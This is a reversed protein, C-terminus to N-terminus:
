MMYGSLLMILAVLIASAMIAPAFLIDGVRSALLFFLVVLGVGGLKNALTAAFNPLISRLAGFGDLPPLPLLNLNALALNIFVATTCLEIAGLWLPAYAVGSLQAHGLLLATPDLHRASPCLVLLIMMLVMLVNAAFLALMLNLSVGALSVGLNGRRYNRYRQPRVPVPKAWGIVTNGPLVSLILPVIISGFPDIHRIPNLNIRRHDRATTDGSWWAAVGHAIEHFIISVVLVALVAVHHWIPQPQKGTKEDALTSVPMSEPKETQEFTPISDTENDDLEQAFSTAAPANESEEQDADSFEARTDARKSRIHDFAMKAVNFGALGACALSFVSIALGAVGVRRDHLRRKGGLLLMLSLIFLAVAPLSGVLPILAPVALIWAACAMGSAVPEVPQDALPEVASRITLTEHHVAIEPTGTEVAAEDAAACPRNWYASPALRQAEERKTQAPSTQGLAELSNAMTAALLSRDVPPLMGPDIQSLLSVTREHEGIIQCSKAIELNAVPRLNRHEPYKAVLDDIARAADSAAALDGKHASLRSRLGILLVRLGPSKLDISELIALYRECLDYQRSELASEAGCRLSLGHITRLYSARLETGGVAAEPNYAAPVSRTRPMDQELVWETLRLAEAHRGLNKLVQIAATVWRHSVQGGRRDSEQRAIQWAEELQGLNNACFMATAGWEIEPVRHRHLIDALATLHHECRAAEGIASYVAAALEHLVAKTRPNRAIRLGRDYWERAEQYRGLQNLRTGVLADLLGPNVLRDLMAAPLWSRHLRMTATLATAYDGEVAAINAQRALRRYMPWTIVLAAVIAGFVAMPWCAISFVQGIVICRKDPFRQTCYAAMRLPPRVHPWGARSLTSPLGAITDATEAM